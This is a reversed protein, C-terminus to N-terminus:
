KRVHPAGEEPPVALEHADGGNRDVAVLRLELGLAEVLTRLTGLRPNGRREAKSLDSQSMGVADALAQQSVGRARRLEAVTAHPLRDTRGLARARRAAVFARWLPSTGQMPHADCLRVVREALEGFPDRAIARALPRWDTFDGRELLDDIAALGREELPTGEYALHRHIM